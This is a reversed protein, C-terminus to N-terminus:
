SNTVQIIVATTPALPIINNEDCSSGTSFSLSSQFPSTFTIVGSPSPTVVLASTNDALCVRVAPANTQSEWMRVTAHAVGALTPITLTAPGSATGTFFLASTGVNQVSGYYYVITSPSTTPIATALAQPTASFNVAFISLSAPSPSYTSDPILGTFTGSILAPLTITGALGGTLTTNSFAQGTPGPNPTTTFTASPSPNASGTPTATPASGTPSSTPSASGSPAATPTGAPVYYFQVLYTHGAVLSSNGGTNANVCSGTGSNNSITAILNAVTGPGACALKTAPAQTIDDFEVYYSATPPQNGTLTVSESSFLQGTVSASVSFTIYFFPVAGSVAEASRKLSSPVPASSPATVSSSSTISVGAPVGAAVAISAQQGGQAAPIILTGGATPITQTSSPAATSTPQAIPVSQVTGGGCSAVILGGSVVLAAAALRLMRPLGSM